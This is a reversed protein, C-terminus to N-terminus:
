KLLIMKRTQEFEGTTLKYFYIGSSLNEANWNLTHEGANQIGNHLTQLKRGLIDYIDLKVKSKESLTFSISTRANFPNPYNQSLAIQDPLASEDGIAATTYEIIITSFCDALFIYNGHFDLNHSRGPSDWQNTLSPGTLDGIDVVAVGDTAILAFNNVISIDSANEPIECYSERRFDNPNETNVIEFYGTDSAMFAYNERVAITKLVFGSQSNYSAILEPNALDEINIISVGTHCLAYVYNGDLAMDYVIGNNTECGGLVVPNAPDAVNIIRFPLGTTMIAFLLTDRVDVARVSFLGDSYYGACYVSDPNSVDIISIRGCSASALYVYGGNHCMDKIGNVVLHDNIGGRMVPFDPNTYDLVQFGLQLGIYALNGECEVSFSERPISYKDLIFTNDPNSIDARVLYSGLCIVSTGELACVSTASVYDFDLEFAQNIISVPNTPQSIDYAVLGYYDNATYLIDNEFYIDSFESDREITSILNPSGPQEIDYINIKGYIVMDDYLWSNIYLHDNHITADKLEWQEDLTDIIEPNECDSIDIVYVGNAHTAVYLYGAYGTISELSNPMEFSSILVPDQLNSIDIFHLNGDHGALYLTDGDFYIDSVDDEIDLCAFECTIPLTSIDLVVLGAGFTTIFALNDKLVLRNTGGAIPWGAVLKFEGPTSIDFVEFASTGLCYAYNDRIEIDNISGTFVSASNFSMIQASVVSVSLCIIILIYTALKNM